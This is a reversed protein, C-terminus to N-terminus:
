KRQGKNMSNKGISIYKMKKKGRYIRRDKLVLRLDMDMSCEWRRIERLENESFEAKYKIM